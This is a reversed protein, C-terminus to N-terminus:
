GFESILREAAIRAGDLEMRVVLAQARTTVEPQLAEGQVLTDATLDDRTTGSAGVGLQQVRHAWYFQDYNHPIILKV